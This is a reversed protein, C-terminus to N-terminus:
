AAVWHGLAVEQLPGNPLADVDLTPLLGRKRSPDPVPVAKLLTKTYAHRPANLVAQRPGM